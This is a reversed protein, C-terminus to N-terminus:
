IKFVGSKSKIGDFVCTGDVPVYQRTLLKIAEQAVMGGVISSINHLEGGQAREVETIANTINERSEPDSLVSTVDNLMDPSLNKNNLAIFVPFLSEWDNEIISTLRSSLKSDPLMLRLSPLAEKKQNTLVRVHSANKCFAEIESDPVQSSATRSLSAEIQRVLKTVEAVDARAKTKYITQLKVYDASTAKMDPLTGPLPLVGHSDYFTKIANAVVWFNASDATLNTCSPMSMMEKCGSGIPPPAISKLVAACAEDFNEEGGEPNNTRAGSKVLDRFETKEKFSSPYKDNHDLRWQRLYHLLILIYPVHGHDHDPLSSLDGLADIEADLEPWPALLRLDQTSEPDPHTDVIPFETPLQISFSAFFGASQVYIIPISKELAYGCIRELPERSVPACLLILNYPKLSDQSPLWEALPASIAHGTVDPNLEQLLRRMEDARSKHLSNSELFFNIGLDRETVTASDAITFSGVSPLILNKLAEAGAVSSNSGFADDGVILLVHSEELARQGSAAWLRLQRDYKREKATPAQLPPPTLEHPATETM